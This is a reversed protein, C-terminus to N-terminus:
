SSSDSIRTKGLKGEKSRGNVRAAEPVTADFWFTDKTQNVVMLYM